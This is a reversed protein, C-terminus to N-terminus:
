MEMDHSPAMWKRILKEREDEYFHKSYRSSYVEELERRPFEIRNRFQRYLVSGSEIDKRNEEKLGAVDIGLFEGLAVDFVGDLDEVRIILVDYNNENFRSFGHQQAFPHSYVDIGTYRAFENDFWNLIYKYSNKRKYIQVLEDVDASEISQGCELYNQPNQFFDSINRSVPDRVLSIIKIAKGPNEQRLKEAKDIQEMHWKYAAKGQARKKFDKSLFHLHVVREPDLHQLITANVTSSGVKGPQYVFVINQNM